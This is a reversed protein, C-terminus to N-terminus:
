FIFIYLEFNQFFDVIIFYLIFNEILFKFFLKLILYEIIIMVICYYIFFYNRIKVNYYDIYLVCQGSFYSKNCKVCVYSFMNIFISIFFYVLFFFYGRLM